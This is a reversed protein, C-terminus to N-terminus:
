TFRVFGVERCIGAATGIPGNSTTTMVLKAGKEVIPLAATLAREGEAQFDAEDMLLASFTYARVMDAGQPIALITSGTDQYVLKGIAGKKTRWSQYERRFVPEALHDEALACRQDVLYAAKDENESQMLIWNSPFYRARHMAWISLGWSVMRRRSKPICLLPERDIADFLEHLYTKESPWPLIAQTAEDQTRVQECAFLWIDERYCRDKLEVIETFAQRLKKPSLKTLDLTPTTVIAV